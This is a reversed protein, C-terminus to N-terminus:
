GRVGGNLVVVPLQSAPPLCQGVSTRSLGYSDEPDLAAIILLDVNEAKIVQSICQAPNASVEIRPIFRPHHGRQRILESLYHRGARTNAAVVQDHLKQESETLPLRRPMLPAAAVYLLIVEAGEGGVVEDALQLGLEAQRSGDLPVLIRRYNSDAELGDLQRVIAVAVNAASLVKLVTGGFPFGTKGGSGFASLIVLDIDLETIVRLISEAPRGESLEVTSSVGSLIPSAALTHLYRSAEAKRIRWDVSETRSAASSELAHFLILRANFARALRAAHPLASEAADSGDLSLLIRKFAM